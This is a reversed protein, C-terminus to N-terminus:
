SITDVSSMEIPDDVKWSIIKINYQEYLEEESLVSTKTKFLFKEKKVIHPKIGDKYTWEGIYYEPSGLVCIIKTKDKLYIIIGTEKTDKVYGKWTRGTMPNHGRFEVVYVENAIIEEGDKEYVLEMSFEAYSFEPSPPEKEFSFVLYYTLMAILPLSSFVIAMVAILIKVRKKM